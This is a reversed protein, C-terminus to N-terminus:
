KSFLYKEVSLKKTLIHIAQAYIFSLISMMSFLFLQEFKHHCICLMSLAFYVASLIMLLKALNLTYRTLLTEIIKLLPFNVKFYSLYVLFILSALGGYLEFNTLMEHEFFTQFVNIKQLILQLYFIITTLFFSRLFIKKHSIVRLM